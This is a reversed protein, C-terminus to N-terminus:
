SLSPPLFFLLLFLGILQTIFLTWGFFLVLIGAISLIGGVVAFPHTIARKVTKRRPILYQKPLFFAALLVGLLGVAAPVFLVPLIFGLLFLIVSLGIIILLINYTSLTVETLPFLTTLLSQAGAGVIIQPPPFLAIAATIDLISTEAQHSVGWLLIQIIKLM